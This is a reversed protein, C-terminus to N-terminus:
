IGVSTKGKELLNTKHADQTGIYALLLPMKRKERAKLQVAVSEQQKPQEASCATLSSIILFSGLIKKM